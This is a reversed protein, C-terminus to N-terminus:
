RARGRREEKKLKNENHIQIVNVTVLLLLVSGFLLTSVANVEPTVRRRVMSYITVSLTQAGSGATCYSIVFDDLSLTFAMLLGTFVGSAIEPLIVKFFAPVPHCGLDLAAEYLHKDTQRLKPMIQLIVYPIDFTIHAILLTGFGMKLHTGFTHNMFSIIAVFLLMLAVGTVIEPNNVPINNVTLFVKKLKNNMGHIGVAAATGIVTAVLSAIIAVLLTVQLSEMIMENQFLQEYWKLSFGNWVVRSKSDNFSFLILVAIPAYLFLFILSNYVRSLAKM